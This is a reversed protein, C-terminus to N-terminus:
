RAYHREATPAERRRLSRLLQERAPLQKDAAVAWRRWDRFTKVSIGFQDAGWTDFAWWLGKLRRPMIMRAVSSAASGRTLSIDIERATRRGYLKEMLRTRETDDRDDATARSSLEALRQQEQPTLGPTDRYRRQRGIVARVQDWLEPPVKERTMIRIFAAEPVADQLAFWLTLTRWNDIQLITTIVEFREWPRTPPRGPGRQQGAAGADTKRAVM